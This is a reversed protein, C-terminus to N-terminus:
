IQSLTRGTLISRDDWWHGIRVHEDPLKSLKWDRGARRLRFRGSLREGSLEVDLEGRLIGVAAKVDDTEDGPAIPRYLGKDWVLMPGTGIQGEPICRESLMWKIKHDPTRWARLSDTPDLSPHTPLVWSALAGFVELRFDDHLTKAQHHKVVFQLHPEHQFLNLQYSM